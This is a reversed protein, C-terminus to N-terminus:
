KPTKFCLVTQASVEPLLVLRLRMEQMGKKTVRPLVKAKRRRLEEEPFLPVFLM